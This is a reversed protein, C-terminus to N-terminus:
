FKDGSAKRAQERKKTALYALHQFAKGIRKCWEKDSVYFSFQDSYALEDTRLILETNTYKTYWKRYNGTLYLKIQGEYVKVTDLYELDVTKKHNVGHRNVMNNELEYGTIKYLDSRFYKDGLKSSHKNIFQITEGWTADNSADQANCFFTITLCLSLLITKFTIKM